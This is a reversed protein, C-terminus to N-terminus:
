APHTKILPLTFRFVSGGRTSEGGSRAGSAQVITRVISLWTRHGKQKTTYFTDFVAKLKDIPIGTGSDSVSVEIRSEGALATQITM